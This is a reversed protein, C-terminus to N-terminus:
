SMAMETALASTEDRRSWTFEMNYPAAEFCVFRRWRTWFASALVTICWREYPEGNEDVASSWFRWQSGISHRIPRRKLSAVKAYLANCVPLWRVKSFQKSAVFGYVFEAIKRKEGSKQERNWPAIKLKARTSESDRCWLNPVWERDINAIRWWERSKTPM